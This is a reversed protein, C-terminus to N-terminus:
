INYCFKYKRIEYPKYKLKGGQQGKSKVRGMNYTESYRIIKEKKIRIFEKIIPKLNKRFLEVTKNIVESYGAIAMNMKKKIEKLCATLDEAQQWTMIMDIETKSMETGGIGSTTTFILNGKDNVGILQLM